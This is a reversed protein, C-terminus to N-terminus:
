KNNIFFLRKLISTIRRKVSKHKRYKRVYVKVGMENLISMLQYIQKLRISKQFFKEDLSSFEQM